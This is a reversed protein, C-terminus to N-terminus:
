RAGSRSESNGLLGGVSQVARVERGCRSQGLVANLSSDEVDELTELFDVGGLYCKWRM